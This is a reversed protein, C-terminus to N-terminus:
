PILDDKLEAILTKLNTSAYGVELQSKEPLKSLIQKLTKILEDCGYRMLMPSLENKVRQLISRPQAAKSRPEGDPKNTSLLHSRFLKLNELKQHAILDLIEECIQEVFRETIYKLIVPLLAFLTNGREVQKEILSRRDLSALNKLLDSQSIPLLINEKLTAIAVPQGEIALWYMIEKESESLREFQSDLLYRIDGLFLTNKLFEAVQGNFLEKVTGAVIKLALANGGYRDILSGWYEQGYLRKEQFIAQGIEKSGLVQLSRAKEGELLALEAPKEASLLLLCSNHNAEAIRRVLERYGEHERRYKGALEEPSLLTEFDDLVLLCRHKRLHEVLRSLRTNIDEALDAKKSTSLIHSLHALLDDLSPGSRLSRWIVYEFEEQIQKALQVALTTKGIGGLGLLAVLRSRDKVIWQELTALEKARGYFAAIDPADGWDRRSRAIAGTSKAPLEAQAAGNEHGNQHITLLLHKLEALKGPGRGNINFKRYVEGLRKRVAINSIGLGSAIAATSQGDLALLLAELEADSVGREAVLEQLADQPIAPIM